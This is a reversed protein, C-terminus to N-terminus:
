YGLDIAKKSWHSNTIADLMFYAVDARSIQFFGKMEEQARYKGTLVGNTLKGPRAITWNLNSQRILQESIFHDKFPNIFGLTALMFRLFHNSVSDRGGIGYASEYVLKTIRHQEMGKIVLAMTKSVFRSKDNFKKYGLTSLIADHEALANTMKHEDNLEGQIINIKDKLHDLKQPNRVYVTVQHGANLAQEVLKLGTAGTAGLIFLKM